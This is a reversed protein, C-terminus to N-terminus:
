RSIKKKETWKGAKRRWKTKLHRKKGLEKFPNNETKGQSAYSGLWITVM